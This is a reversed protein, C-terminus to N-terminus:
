SCFGNAFTVTPNYMALGAGATVFFNVSNKRRIFDITAVNVVGSLTAQGFNLQISLMITSWWHM